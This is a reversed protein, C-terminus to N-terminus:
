RQKFGRIEPPKLPNEPNSDAGGGRPLFPPPEKKKRSAAKGSRYAQPRAYIYIQVPKQKRGENAAASQKRGQAKYIPPPSLEPVQPRAGQYGPAPSLEHWAGTSALHKRFSSQDPRM